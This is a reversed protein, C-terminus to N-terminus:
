NASLLRNIRTSINDKKGRENFLVIFEKYTCFVETIKLFYESCYEVGLFKHRYNGM